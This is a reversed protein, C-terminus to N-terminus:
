HHNMLPLLPSKGDIPMSSTVTYVAFRHPNGAGWIWPKAGDLALHFTTNNKSHIHGQRNNFKAIQGNVRAGPPPRENALSPVSPGATPYPTGWPSSTYPPPPPPPPAQTPFCLMPGPGSPPPGQNPFCMPQGFPPPGFPSPGFQPPGFLYPGGFPPPGGFPYQPGFMAGQPPELGPPIGNNPAGGDPTHYRYRTGM